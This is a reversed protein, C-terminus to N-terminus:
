RVINHHKDSSIKHYHYNNNQFQVLREIIYQYNLKQTNINALIAVNHQIKYYYM